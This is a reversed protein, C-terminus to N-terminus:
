LIQNSVGRRKDESTISKIPDDRELASVPDLTVPAVHEVTVLSLSEIERLFQSPVIILQVLEMKNCIFINHLIM